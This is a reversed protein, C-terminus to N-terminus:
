KILTNNGINLIACSRMVHVSFTNETQSPLSMTTLKTFCAWGDIHTEPALVRDARGWRMKTSMAATNIKFSYVTCFPQPLKQRSNREIWRFPDVVRRYCMLYKKLGLNAYKILVQELSYFVPCLCENGINKPCVIYEKERWHTHM